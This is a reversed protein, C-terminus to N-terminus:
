YDVFSHLRPRQSSLPFSHWTSNSSPFQPWMATVQHNMDVTWHGSYMYKVNPGKLLQCQSLSELTLLKNPSSLLICQYSNIHALFWLSHAILDSEVPPRQLKIGRLFSQFGTHFGWNLFFPAPTNIHTTNLQYSNEPSKLEKASNIHLWWIGIKIKFLICIPHLYLSLFSFSPSLYLTVSIFTGSSGLAVREGALAHSCRKRETDHEVRWKWTQHVCQLLEWLDESITNKWGLFGAEM